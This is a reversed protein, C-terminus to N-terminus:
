RRKVFRFERTGGIKGVRDITEGRRSTASVDQRAEGKPYAERAWM